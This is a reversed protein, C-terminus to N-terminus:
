QSYNRYIHKLRNEAWKAEKIDHVLQDQINQKHKSSLPLDDVLFYLSSSLTEHEKKLRMMENFLDSNVTNLSSIIFHLKHFEGALKANNNQIDMIISSKGALVPLICNLFELGEADAYYEVEEM